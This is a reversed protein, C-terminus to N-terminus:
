SCVCNIKINKWCTTWNSMHKACPGCYPNCAVIIKVPAQPNGIILDNEWETTDIKQEQQWQALFLGADLKWKKLEALKQTNTHNDTLLQKIPQVILGALCALAAFSAIAQWNFMSLIGTNAAVFVALVFQLLLVAVIGLCLACGQKLTVAQTYISWGAVVIGTFSVLLMASFMAPYIATGIFTAFQTTFYILALDGTTLGAFGNAYNTKLVKECGGKGVAGCVQKVISNQVGLETGTIWTSLVIGTLSLIGMMAYVPNPNNYVLLTFIGSAFLVAAIQWVRNRQQKLRYADHEKHQWRAGGDPYLVIGTWNKTIEKESDWEGSHSILHMYEHGPQKIHALLPYNFETIYSADAQVANYEMGGTDLFDTVATLSPYDPHTSVEERCYKKNVANGSVMLWNHTTQWLEASTNKKYSM